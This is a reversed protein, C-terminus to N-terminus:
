ALAFCGTFEDIEELEANMPTSWSPTGGSMDRTELEYQTTCSHACAIRSLALELVSGWESTKPLFLEIQKLGYRILRIPCNQMTFERLLKAGFDTLEGGGSRTTIISGEYPPVFWLGNSYVVESFPGCNTTVDKGTKFSRWGANPHLGMLIKVPPM